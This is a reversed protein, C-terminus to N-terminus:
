TDPSVVDNDCSLFFNMVELPPIIPHRILRSLYRELDGRRAEVFEDNFRGAYQKGPLPPLVIGPFMRNLVTHLSIFHSFRRHVTVTRSPAEGTAFAEDSSYFVSTVQYVTYAGSLAAKKYPSHVLIRFRPVKRRWSPGPDMHYHYVNMLAEENQQDGDEDTASSQL